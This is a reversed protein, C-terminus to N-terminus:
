VRSEQETILDRDTANNRRYTTVSMINCSDTGDNTAKNCLVSHPTPRKCNNDDGIDKDQERRHQTNAFCISRFYQM